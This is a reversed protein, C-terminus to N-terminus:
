MVNDLNVIVSIDSVSNPDSVQTNPRKEIGTRAKTREAGTRLLDSVSDPEPEPVLGCKPQPAGAGRM